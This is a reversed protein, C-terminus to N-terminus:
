SPKEEGNSAHEDAGGTQVAEADVKASTLEDEPKQPKAYEPMPACHRIIPFSHLTPHFLPTLADFLIILIAIVLLTILVSAVVIPAYVNWAKGDFFGDPDTAIESEPLNAVVSDDAVVQITFTVTGYVGSGIDGLSVGDRFLKEYDIATIEDSGNKQWVASGEVYQLSVGYDSKLDVGASVALPMTNEASITAGLRGTTGAALEYPMTVLLQAADADRSFTLYSGKARTSDNRYLVQVQYQRGHVLQVTGELYEKDSGLDTIRVFKTEDGYKSNNTVSNFVAYDPRAEETFLARNSSDVEGKFVRPLTPDYTEEPEATVEPTPTKVTGTPNSPNSDNASVKPTEPLDVAKTTIQFGMYCAQGPKFVGDLADYGVPIDWLYNNAKTYSAPDPNVGEGLQGDSWVKITDTLIEIELDEAPMYWIAEADEVTNTRSYDAVYANFFSMSGSEALVTSQFTFGIGTTDSTANADYEWYSWFEYTKGAELTMPSAYSADKSYIAQSSGVEKISFNSGTTGPNFGFTVPDDASASPDAALGSDTASGDDATLIEDITEDVTKGAAFAPNTLLSFAMLLALICALPRIRTNKM